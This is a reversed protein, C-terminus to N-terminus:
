GEAEEVPSWRYRDFSIRGSGDFEIGEAELLFRQLDDWGLPRRESIAGRANVVRHWPVDSEDPLARLARGVHRPNTLGALRAIQAYTAVKGRPIRRVVAWVKEKAITM